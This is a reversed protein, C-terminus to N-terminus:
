GGNMRGRRLGVPELQTSIDSYGCLGERSRDLGVTLKYKVAEKCVVVQEVLKLSETNTSALMTFNDHEDLEPSQM